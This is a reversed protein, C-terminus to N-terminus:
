LLPSWTELFLVLLSRCTCRYSRNLTFRLWHRGMRILIDSFGFIAADRILFCVMHVDMSSLDSVLRLEMSKHLDFSSMDPQLHRQWLCGIFLRANALQM